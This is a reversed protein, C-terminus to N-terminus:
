PWRDVLDQTVADLTGHERAIARQRVYGPQDAVAPVAALEAACGLRHAVPALRAVEAALAERLPVTSREPTIIETDVGWRAARWKNEKLAWRPLRPLPDGADFRDNLDAVLCQSLAALALVEDLTGMTDCVRVEVTGFGPHPRVDWWLERVSRIAGADQMEAMLHRFEEFSDVEPPLDATPMGEFVKTRASALGTDRGSWFPSSASPGLLLPTATALSNAIAVAADGSRVGVHYHIGHCMSRRAPWQIWEAFEQYRPKDSVELETWRATPHLGGPQMALGAPELVAQIEAMSDLLDARADAVTACIGTIMELSSAYFENKVKPHESEGHPRLAELVEASAPRLDLSSRDVLGLEVEVGLTPGASPQYEVPGV